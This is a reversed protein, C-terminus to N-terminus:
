FPIDEEGVEPAPADPASSNRPSGLLEFSSITLCQRTRTEGDQEWTEIHPKGEVLIKDGKKVYQSLIVATNAWATARVWETREVKVGQDNKYSDDVAVSINVVDRGSNTKRLELDQGVNGICQLTFRPKHFAM